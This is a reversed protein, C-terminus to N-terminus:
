LTNCYLILNYLLTAAQLRNIKLPELAGVPRLPGKIYGVGGGGM